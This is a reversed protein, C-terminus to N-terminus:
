LLNGRGRKYVEPDFRSMMYVLAAESTPFYGCVESFRTRTSETCRIGIRDTKSLVM